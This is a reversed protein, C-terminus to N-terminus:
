DHDTARSLTVAEWAFGLAEVERCLEPMARAVGAPAGRLALEVSFDAARM